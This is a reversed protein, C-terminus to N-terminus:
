EKRGSIGESGPMIGHECFKIISHRSLFITRGDNQEIEVFENFM